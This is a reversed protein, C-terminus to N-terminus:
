QIIASRSPSKLLSPPIVQAELHVLPEFKYSREPLPPHLGTCWWTVKGAGGVLGTTKLTLDSKSPPSGKFFSNNRYNSWM